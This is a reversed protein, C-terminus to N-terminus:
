ESFNRCPLQWSLAASHLKSLTKLTNRPRGPGSMTTKYVCSHPFERSIFDACVQNLDLPRQEPRPLIHSLLLQNHTIKQIAQHEEAVLALIKRVPMANRTRFVAFPLIGVAVAPRM